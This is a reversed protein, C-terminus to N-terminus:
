NYSVVNWESSIKKAKSILMSFTSFGLIRSRSLLVEQPLSFISDNTGFM